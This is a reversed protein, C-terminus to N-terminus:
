TIQSARMLRQTATSVLCVDLTRLMMLDIGEHFDATVVVAAWAESMM